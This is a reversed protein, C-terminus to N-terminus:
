RNIVGEMKVGPLWQNNEQRQLKGKRSHKITTIIHKVGGQTMSNIM